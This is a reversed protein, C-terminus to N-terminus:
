KLGHVVVMDQSTGHASLADFFLDNNVTLGAKSFNPGPMHIELDDDADGVVTVFHGAFPLEGKLKQTRRLFVRFDILAIVPKDDALANRIGQLGIPSPHAIGLRMADRLRENAHKVCVMGLEDTVKTDEPRDDYCYEVSLGLTDLALVMGSTSTWRETPLTSLRRLQDLSSCDRAQAYLLASKMVAQGCFDPNPNEVFPVRLM